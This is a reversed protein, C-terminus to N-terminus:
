ATVVRDVLPSEAALHERLGSVIAREVAGGVVLAKVKVRGRVTRVCGGGSPEIACTGSSRLRDPYHDPLLEYSVTRRVLDHTSSEVWSLKAPDVVATVAPSLDGIFRYRILLRVLGDDVRRDLVQPADLKPLGVLHEYLEASAYARAVTDADAAFPQTVTFDM